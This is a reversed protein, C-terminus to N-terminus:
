IWIWWNKKEILFILESFTFSLGEPGLCQSYLYCHLLNLKWVQGSLYTVHQTLSLQWDCYCNTIWHQVTIWALQWTNSDQLSSMASRSSALFSSLSATTRGIHIGSKKLPIRRGHFTLINSSVQHWLKVDSCVRMHIWLRDISHKQWCKHAWKNGNITIM